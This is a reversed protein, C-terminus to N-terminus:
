ASANEHLFFRIVEASADLGSAETFSGDACGGFWAHTGGPVICERVMVRGSLDKYNTFAATSPATGRGTIPQTVLPTKAQRFAEVVQRTIANGNALQVTRDADGHLVLTRVPKGSRAFPLRGKRAVRGQMATFASGVDQAAGRPLGSHAAVGAFLEPYTQGLIVAMAAGASLGAVFVRGPAVAWNASISTAIGAILSPERGHRRQEGAEFWNWCNAGQSWFTQRPYAVLFRHADALSNMRTGMAFDDPDQQCGHLMVILPMPRGCHGAPVYLKYDRWGQKNAFTLSSFTGASDSRLKLEPWAAGSARSLDMGDADLHERAAESDRAIAPFRDNASM